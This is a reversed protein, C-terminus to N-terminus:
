HHMIFDALDPVNFYYLKLIQSLFDILCGYSDETKIYNSGVLFLFVWKKLPVWKCFLLLVWWFDWAKSKRQFFASHLLISFLCCM